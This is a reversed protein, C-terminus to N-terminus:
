ASCPALKDTIGSSQRGMSVLRQLSISHSLKESGPRDIAAKAFDELRIVRIKDLPQASRFEPHADPRSKSSRFAESHQRLMVAKAIDMGIVPLEATRKM